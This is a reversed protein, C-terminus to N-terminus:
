KGFVTIRVTNSEVSGAVSNASCSYEGDHSKDVTTITAIHNTANIQILDDEKMEEGNFYFTVMPPPIGQSVCTLMVPDGVQVAASEPPRLIQPSVAILLLVFLSTRIMYAELIHGYIFSFIM